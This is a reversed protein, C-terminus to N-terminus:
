THKSWDFKLYHVFMKIPEKLLLWVPFTLLTIEQRSQKLFFWIFAKVLEFRKVKIKLPTLLFHLGIKLYYWFDPKNYEHFLKKRRLDFILLWYKFCEKEKYAVRLFTIKDYTLWPSNNIKKDQLFLSGIGNQFGFYLVLVISNPITISM